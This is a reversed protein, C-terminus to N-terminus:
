AAARGIRAPHPKRRPLDLQEMRRYIAGYGAGLQRAADRMHIQGAHTARIIADEAATFTRPRNM